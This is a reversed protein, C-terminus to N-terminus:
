TRKRAPATAAASTTNAAHPESSSAVWDAAEHVQKRYAPDTSVSPISLLKIMRKVAADSLDLVPSDTSEPATEPEKTAQRTETAM